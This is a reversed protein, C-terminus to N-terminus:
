ATLVLWAATTALLLAAARNLLRLARAPARAAACAALAAWGLKMGAIALTAAAIVLAADLPTVSKVDLFAPLFGLYFLLAKQDGFTLLFGALFSSLLSAPRAGAGAAMGEQATAGRWLGAALGLLFAAGAYKFGPLWASGMDGILALGFLAALILVADAAAIGATAAIGHRLGGAASRALVAAVSVGPVAALLAMAATLALLAGPTLSTEM